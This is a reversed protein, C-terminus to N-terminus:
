ESKMKHRFVLVAIVDVVAAYALVWTLEPMIRSYEGALAYRGADVAHLFPLCEALKEFVGGVMAPDFWTGSLWASLNTLLAGCAGGVQKDNFVSGCLLGIGIFLLAAPISVLVTLLINFSPFLGLIMAAAFCILVQVVTMPILPLTYGAIFDGAGMPSAFLRMIFSSTRDKAIIMGSFLSIFSMGFVAIGPTLKDIQFMDVPANAGILSLLLLLIVPFGIGFGLSTKDRLIEKANRSAFAMTKM